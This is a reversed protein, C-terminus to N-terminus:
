KKVYILYESAGEDALLLTDNRIRYFFGKKLSDIRMIGKNDKGYVKGICNLIIHPPNSQTSYKAVFKAQSERNVLELSRETVTLDFQQNVSMWEGVIAVKQNVETFAMSAGHIATRFGLCILVLVFIGKGINNMDKLKDQDYHVKAWGIWTILGVISVCLMIGYHTLMWNYASQVATAIILLLMGIMMLLIAPGDNPADIIVPRGDIYVVKRTDLFPNYM